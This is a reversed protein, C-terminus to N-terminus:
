KYILPYAEPHELSEVELDVDLSPWHLHKQHHYEMDYIQDVTAKQFWPYQTFSLFFEKDGILIWIGHNSINQVEAVSTSKGSKKLKKPM